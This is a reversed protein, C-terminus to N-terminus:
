GVGVCKHACVCCVCSNLLLVYARLPSNWLLHSHSRSILSKWFPAPMKTRLSQALNCGVDAEGFFSINLSATPLLNPQVHFTKKKKRGESKRKYTDGRHTKCHPFTLMFISYFHDPWSTPTPKKFHLFYLVSKLHCRCPNLEEENKKRQRWAFPVFSSVQKRNAAFWCLISKEYCAKSSYAICKECSSPLTKWLFVQSKLVVLSFSASHLKAQKQEEGIGQHM